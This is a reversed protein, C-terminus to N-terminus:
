RWSSSFPRPSLSGAKMSAMACSAEFLSIQVSPSSIRPSATGRGTAVSRLSLRQGCVHSDSQSPSEAMVFVKSLMMRHSFPLITYRLQYPYFDYEIQGAVELTDEDRAGGSQTRLCDGGWVGPQQQQGAGEARGTNM